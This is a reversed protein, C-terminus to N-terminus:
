AVVWPVRRTIVRMASTARSLAVVRFGLIAGKVERRRARDVVRDARSPSQRMPTPPESHRWRAIDRRRAFAPIVAPRAEGSPFAKPPRRSEYIRRYFRALGSTMRWVADYSPM